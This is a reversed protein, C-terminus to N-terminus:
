GYSKAYVLNVIGPKKLGVSANNVDEASFMSAAAFLSIRQCTGNEDIRLM